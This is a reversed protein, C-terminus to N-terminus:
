TNNWAWTRSEPCIIWIDIIFEQHKLILEYTQNTCEPQPAFPFPRYSPLLLPKPPFTSPFAYNQIEYIRSEKRASRWLSGQVNWWCESCANRRLRSPWDLRVTRPRRRGLDAARESSRVDLDGTGAATEEVAEAADSATVGGATASNGSTSTLCCTPPLVKSQMIVSHDTEPNKAINAYKITHM